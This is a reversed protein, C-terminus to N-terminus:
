QALLVASAPVLAIQAARNATSWLILASITEARVRGLLMVGSEQRARFAAQDLFRRIIRADQGEADLDRYLLAAPVKAATAARMQTNLGHSASILGRGEAALAAMVQDLGSRSDPLGAGTFDLIAVAEPLADFTAALAVEVDNPAAAQPVQAIAAVEIGRQRYARMLDAAGPQLPDIAVTVAVGAALLADPGGPMRGDDILVLAMIPLGADDYVAAFDQLAIGTATEGFIPLEQEPATETGPRIVRVTVDGQPMQGAPEGSLGVQPRAPAGQDEDLVIMPLPEGAEASEPSPSPALAIAEGTSPQPPQAPDTSIVLGAEGAPQSPALAQPNPLVPSEGAASVGPANEVDPQPLTGEVIGAQPLTGGDAISPGAEGAPQAPAQGQAGPAVATDGAVRLGGTADVGPEPLSGEVGAAAPRDASATDAQPLTAGDGAQPAVPAVGTQVGEATETPATASDGGIAPASASPAATQPPAPPTNGAPQELMLSLASLLVAAVLVGVISGKLFGTFVGEGWTENDKAARVKVSVM